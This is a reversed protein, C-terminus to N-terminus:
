HILSGQFFGDTDDILQILIGLCDIILIQIFLQLFLRAPFHQRGMYNIADQGHGGGSSEHHGRHQHGKQGQAGRNEQGHNKAPHRRM